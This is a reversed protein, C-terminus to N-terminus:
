IHILSLTLERSVYVAPADLVDATFAGVSTAILSGIGDSSDTIEKLCRLYGASAYPSFHLLMKNWDDFGEPSKYKDRLKKYTGSVFAAKSRHAEIEKLLKSKHTFM